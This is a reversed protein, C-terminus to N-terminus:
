QGENRRELMPHMKTQADVIALDTPTPLRLSLMQQNNPISSFIKSWKITQSSSEHAIM